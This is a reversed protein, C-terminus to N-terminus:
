TPPKHDKHCATCNVAKKFAAKDDDKVAKILAECKKKWAKEDGRPPKLKLMSEYGDLLKQRDDKSAEGKQYKEHLKEKHFEMVEKITYKPKEDAARLLPLTGGAALSAAVVVIPVVRRM